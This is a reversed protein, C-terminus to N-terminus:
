VLVMAHHPINDELYEEGVPEFGLNGYWKLLYCQASIKIPTNGWLKRCNEISYRMLEKGIGSGRVAKANVVRGISVYKEYSIGRPVLRTYAVLDEEQYALVHYSKYDKGDCDLYPCDQEVVFVDQRLKLTEYLQELTFESFAICIYKMPYLYFSSLLAPFPTLLFFLINGSHFIRYDKVM